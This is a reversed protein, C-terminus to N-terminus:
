LKRSKYLEIIELHYLTLYESFRDWSFVRFSSTKYRLLGSKTVDHSGAFRVYDLLLLSIGRAFKIYTEVMIGIWVFGVLIFLYYNDAGAETAKSSCDGDEEGAVTDVDEFDGAFDAFDASSDL